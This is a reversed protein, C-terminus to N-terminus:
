KLVQYFVEGKKVMGLENRARNEIAGGGKKLSSVESMLLANKQHLDENIKQQESIQHKLRAVQLLGDNAFWLRYQLVAFLVLLVIVFPKMFVQKRENVTLICIFM